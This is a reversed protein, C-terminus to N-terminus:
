LWDIVASYEDLQIPFKFDPALRYDIGHVQVGSEEALLDLGNEFEDVSGVTYGGGHSYVFAGAQGKKRTEESSEPYFVRIPITGHLGRLGTFEISGIPHQKSSSVSHIGFVELHKRREAHFDEDGGLHLSSNNQHFDSTSPVPKTHTGTTPIESCM